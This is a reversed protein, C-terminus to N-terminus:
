LFMRVFVAIGLIVLIVGIIKGLREEDVKNAIFSGFVAGFLAAVGAILAVDLLFNEKLFHAFSAVGALFFMVLLSTGISTHLDYDLIFILGIAIFGSGGFGTFGSMIGIIFGFVIFSFNKHKIFFNFSYKSKIFSVNKRVGNCILNVGFVLLLIGIYLNLGTEPARDTFFSGLFAGFVSFLVLLLVPKLKTKGNRLFILGATLAVISDVFLSTGISKHISKGLFATLVPIMYGAVTGSCLSVFVGSGFGALLIIVLSMLDIYMAM